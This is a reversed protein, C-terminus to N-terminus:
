DKRFVVYKFLSYILIATTIGGCLIAMISTVLLSGDFGLIKVERCKDLYDSLFIWGVISYFFFLSSCFLLNSWIFDM